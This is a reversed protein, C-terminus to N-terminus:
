RATGQARPTLPTQTTVRSFGAAELQPTSVRALQGTVPSASDSERALALRRDRPSRRAGEALYVRRPAAVETCPLLVHAMTNAVRTGHRTTPDENHALIRHSPDPLDCRGDGDSYHRM